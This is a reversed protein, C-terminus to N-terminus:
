RTTALRKGAGGGLKRRLGAPEATTDDSLGDLYDSLLLAVAASPFPSM